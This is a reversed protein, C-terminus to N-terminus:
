LYQSTKANILNAISMLFLFLFTFIAFMFRHSPNSWLSRTASFNSAFVVRHMHLSLFETTFPPLLQLELVHLYDCDIALWAKVWWTSFKKMLCARGGAVWFDWDFNFTQFLWCFNFWFVLLDSLLLRLIWLFGM